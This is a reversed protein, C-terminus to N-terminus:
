ENGGRLSLSIKSSLDVPRYCKFSTPRGASYCGKAKMLAALFLCLADYLTAPLIVINSGTDFHVQSDTPIAEDEGYTIATTAATWNNSLVRLVDGKYLEPTMGLFVKAENMGYYVAV